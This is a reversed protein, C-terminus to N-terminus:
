LGGLCGVEWRMEDRLDAFCQVCVWEYGEGRPYDECTTYGEHQIDPGSFAAFTAWCGACHDHDWSASRLWWHRYQLRIGKLHDANDTRWQKDESAM